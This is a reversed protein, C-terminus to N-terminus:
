SQNVFWDTLRVSYAPSESEVEIYLSKGRELEKLDYEVVQGPVATKLIDRFPDCCLARWEDLLLYAM